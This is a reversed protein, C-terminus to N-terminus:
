DEIQANRLRPDELRMKFEDELRKWDYIANRDQPTSIIKRFQRTYLNTFNYCGTTSYLVALDFLELTRISFTAYSLIQGSEDKASL